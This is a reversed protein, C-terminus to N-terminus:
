IHKLKEPVNKNDKIEYEEKSLDVMKKGYEFDSKLGYIEKISAKMSEETEFIGTEKKSEEYETNLKDAIDKGVTASLFTKINGMGKLM